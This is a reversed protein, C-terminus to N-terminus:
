TKQHCKQGTTIEWRVRYIRKETDTPHSQFSIQRTFNVFSQARYVQGQVVIPKMGDAKAEVKPILIYSGQGFAPNVM